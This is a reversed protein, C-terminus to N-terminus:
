EMNNFGAIFKECFCFDNQYLENNLIHITERQIGIWLIFIALDSFIPLSVFAFLRVSPFYEIILIDRRMVHM